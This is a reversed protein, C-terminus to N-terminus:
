TITAVDSQSPDTVTGKPEERQEQGGVRQFLAGMCPIPSYAPASVNVQSLLFMYLLQKKTKVQYTLKAGSLAHAQVYVQSVV